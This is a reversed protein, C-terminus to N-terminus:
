VRRAAPDAATFLCDALGEPLAALGRGTFRDGISGDEALDRAPNASEKASASAAPRQCVSAPATHRPRAVRSRPPTADAAERRRRARRPGSCERAANLVNMVAVIKGEAM